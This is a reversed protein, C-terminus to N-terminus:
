ELGAATGRAVLKAAMKRSAEDIMKGDLSAAGKGAAIAESYADLMRRAFEFQDSSPTFVENAIAVQSPHICWKGDIGLLKARTASERYGDADAYDGFPGDIADCGVARAHNVIQALIYHWQHGPYDPEIMGLDLQPVGQNAAYDGPGFILTEIRDTVGAIETMNVSGTGTEIQVELGLRDSTELDQELQNLLNEVFWLQGADQVKPIMLCDLQAHAGRALEITDDYAYRTTADNVRVVVVMDGYDNSNLADVVKARAGKKEDPAVADELDLFIQDAESDAAKAMMRPDSGPVALCSRRLRTPREPLAGVSAFPHMTM